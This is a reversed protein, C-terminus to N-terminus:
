TGDETFIEEGLKTGFEGSTTDTLNFFRHLLDKVPEPVPTSSPWQTYASTM